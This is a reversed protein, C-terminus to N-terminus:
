IIGLEHALDVAQERGDVGLLSYIAIADKRVVSHSFGIRQSIQAYTLGDALGALVSLQRGSLHASLGADVLSRARRGIRILGTQEATDALRLAEATFTPGPRTGTPAARELRDLWGLLAFRHLGAREDIEAGEAALRDALSPDGIAHAVGSLARAVSGQCNHGNEDIAILSRYPLLLELLREAARRHHARWSIDALLTASLLWTEARLEDGLLRELHRDISHPRLRDPATRAIAWSVGLDVLHHRTDGTPLHPLASADLDRELEFACTMDHTLKLVWRGPEGGREGAAFARAAETLAHAPDGSALLLSARMAHATWQVTLDGTTRAAGFLIGLADDAAPRDGAMMREIHAAKAIEGRLRDDHAHHLAADLRRRREEHDDPSHHLRAWTLQIRQAVDSRDDVIGTAVLRLAEDIHAMGDAVTTVWNYVGQDADDSETIEHRRLLDALAALLEARRPHDDPLTALTRELLDTARRTGTAYDRGAAFALAADIRESESTAEAHALAALEWNRSRNGARLHASAARLTNAVRDDAEVRILIELAEAEGAADGLSHAAGAAVLARERIISPHGHDGAAALHRLLLIQRDTTLEDSALADAIRAHLDARGVNLARIREPITPHVFEIREATVRAIRAAEIERLLHGIPGGHVRAVFATDAVAEVLAAVALLDIADPSLAMMRRHAGESHRLRTTPDDSRLVASLDPRAGDRIGVDELLDLVALPNGDTLEALNAAEEEAWRRADQGAVATVLAPLDAHSISELPIQTSTSLLGALAARGQASPHADPDRTTTIVLMPLDDITGISQSLLVLSAEDVGHLDELVVVTPESGLAAMVGIADGFGTVAHTRGTTFRTDALAALRTWMGLSPELHAASGTVKLSRFGAAAARESAWRALSSKGIGAPGTLAIVAGTSDLAGTILEDIWVQERGRGILIDNRTARRRPRNTSQQQM